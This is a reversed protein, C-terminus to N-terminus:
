FLWLEDSPPQPPRFRSCDYPPLEGDLGYKRAFLKFLGAIQDALEGTGTMRTGFNPDNLKSGRVSRISSPM